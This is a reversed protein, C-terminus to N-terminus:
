RWELRGLSQSLSRQSALNNYIDAIYVAGTADVAIGDPGNLQANIALGGDGACGSAYGGAIRTLAGRSDLRYVANGSSFYVAGATDVALSSPGIAATLASAYYLPQGRGAITSISYQQAPAAVSALLLALASRFLNRM